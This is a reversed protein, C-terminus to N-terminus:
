IASATALYPADGALTTRHMVRRHGDYGGQACHQVCRNDWMILMDSAWRHRYIFRDEISHAFLRKLLTHSQVKDMNKIGITYVSNVWLAKRGTEPHSRILPHEQVDHAKESPLITMSRDSGGGAFFGQPSYPRRASHLAVLSELEAREDEELADYAAYGDAYWTEGGVPPTIKSHLITAAPPSKQFSWDSHWSAGFPSVKEDPERRVEIIHDHDDMVKVYPEIGFSGFARTFAALQPHDLPQDPFYIVQHRLWLARIEGIVEAALPQSLDVGTIAAAFDGAHAKVTLSM